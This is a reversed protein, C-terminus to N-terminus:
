APLIPVFSQTQTGFDTSRLIEQANTLGTGDFSPTAGLGYVYALDGGLAVSDSGSLHLATLANTLAWSTPGPTATRASDFESVLGAFDFPEVRQDKLPATGNQDFDPMDQAIMQMTVVNKNATGSYWNKLTLKDTGGLNFVL